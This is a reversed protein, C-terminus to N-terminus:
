NIIQILDNITKEEKYTGAIRPKITMANEDYHKLAIEYTVLSVPTNNEKAVTTFLRELKTIIAKDIDSARLVNTHLLSGRKLMHLHVENDKGSKHFKVYLVIEKPAEKKEKAFKKLYKLIEKEYLKDETVFLTAFLTDLEHNLTSIEQNYKDKENSQSLEQLKDYKSKFEDGLARFEENGEKIGHKKLTQEIM